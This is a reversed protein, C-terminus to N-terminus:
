ELDGLGAKQLGVVIKDVLDDVKEIAPGIYRERNYGRIIVSVTPYTQTEKM